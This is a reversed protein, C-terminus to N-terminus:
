LKHSSDTCPKGGLEIWEKDPPHAIKPDKPLKIDGNDRSYAYALDEPGLVAHFLNLQLMQMFNLFAGRYSAPSVSPFIPHFLDDKVFLAPRVEDDRLPDRFAWTMTGEGLVCLAHVLELRGLQKSIELFREVLYLFSDSSAVSGALIFSFLPNTLGHPCSGSERNEVLRNAFTRPRHLRHFKVLKEMAADLVSSSLTQKIEGVAYVGEIPVYTTGSEKSAPSKVPSFWLDNFIITDCKGGTKGHRDLVLGSTVSYRHPLLLRLEDRVLGEFPLGSDFNDIAFSKERRLGQLLRDEAGNCEAAFVSSLTESADRPVWKSADPIPPDSSM